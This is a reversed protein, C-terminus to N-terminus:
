SNNLSNQYIEPVRAPFNFGSYYRAIGAVKQRMAFLFTSPVTLIPVLEM